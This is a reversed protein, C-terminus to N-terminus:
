LGVFSFFPNATNPFYNQFVIWSSWKVGRNENRWIQAKQGKLIMQLISLCRLIDHITDFNRANMKRYSITMLLCVMKQLYM